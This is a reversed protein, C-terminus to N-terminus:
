ILRFASLVLSVSGDSWRMMMEPQFAPSSSKIASGGQWAMLGAHHGNLRGVRVNVLVMKILHTFLQTATMKFRMVQHQRVPDLGHGIHSVNRASKGPDFRLIDVQLAIPRM